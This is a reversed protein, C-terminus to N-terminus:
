KIHLNTHNFFLMYVYMRSVRHIFYIVESKILTCIQIKPVCWEQQLGLNMLLRRVYQCNLVLHGWCKLTKYNGLGSYTRKVSLSSCCMLRVYKSCCRRPFSPSTVKDFSSNQRSMRFVMVFVIDIALADESSQLYGVLYSTIAMAFHNTSYQGIIFSLDVLDLCSHTLSMM